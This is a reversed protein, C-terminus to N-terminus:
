REDGEAEYDNMAQQLRTRAANLRSRVTGVPCGLIAAIEAYRLGEIDRLLVTERLAAPLAALARELVDNRERALTEEEPGDGVARNASHLLSEGRAQRKHADLILRRTITLLYTRLSATADFRYSRQARWLREYDHAALDWGYRQVRRQLRAEM